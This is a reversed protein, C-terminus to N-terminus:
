EVILRAVMAHHAIGCYEGCRVQIEGLQTVRITIKSTLNPMVVTNLSGDQILSVGHLVDPSFFILDYLGGFQLRITNPVFAFQRAMIYVKSTSTPMVLGDPMTVYTKDGPPIRVSGDSLGYKQQQENIKSMFWDETIVVGGHAHGAGAGVAGLLYWLPVILMVLFAIVFAAVLYLNSARVPMQLTAQM